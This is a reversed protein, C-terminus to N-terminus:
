DAALKYLRAVASEGDPVSNIAIRADQQERM